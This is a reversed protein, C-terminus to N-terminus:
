RTLVLDAVAFLHKGLEILLGTTGGYVSRHALQGDCRMEQPWPSQSLRVEYSVIVGYREGFRESANTREGSKM